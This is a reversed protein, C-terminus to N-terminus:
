PKGTMYNETIKFVQVRKNYTDSVYIIDNDDIFVGSPLWFEGKAGGRKGVTLLFTGKNDFLQVNDFISDAVFIIGDKDVAIGKLMAFNGTGDGHRGFSGLFYGMDDFIEVRFNMTDAVYVNGAPSCFIHTPFNLMGEKEGRGGFSFLVEGKTNFAYVTHSLTDVVYLYKKQKNYALGTPRILRGDKVKDIAFLFKGDGDFVFVKAAVSDAVYLRLDEDFIVGVPSVLVEGGVGSLRLYKQEAPVYFHVCRQGMDAVALRGDRGRALSVPLGLSDEDGGGKGYVVTDMLSQSGGSPKFGKIDMLYTVKPMNPPFPWVLATESLETRLSWKSACGLTLLVSLLLM